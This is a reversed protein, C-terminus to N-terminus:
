CFFRYIDLVYGRFHLVARSDFSVGPANRQHHQSRDGLM